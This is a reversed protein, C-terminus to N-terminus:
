RIVESLKEGVFSIRNVIKSHESAYLKLTRIKIFSCYFRIRVSDYISDKLLM